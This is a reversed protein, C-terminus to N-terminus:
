FGDKACRFGPLDSYKRPNFWVWSTTSVYNESNGWSGGRTVLKGNKIKAVMEAANGAMDHVGFPSKGNPFSGVPAWESFTDAEGLANTKLPDWNNGWPFIRGDTGRAAKEWEAETPLRKGAWDCYKVAQSYGLGIIPFQAFKPFERRFFLRYPYIEPLVDRINPVTEIYPIQCKEEEMCRNYQQNTVEYIDIYFSRLNVTHDTLEDSNGGKSRMEFNGGPVLVMAVGDKGLNAKSLGGQSQQPELSDTRELKEMESKESLFISNKLEPTQREVVAGEFEKKSVHEAHYNGDVVKHLTITIVSYQRGSQTVTFPDGKTYTYEEPQTGYRGLLYYNGAAVHVTQEQGNPVEVAVKTPGMLKVIAFEGSQNDFTITNPATQAHTNQHSLCFTFVTLSLLVLMKMPNVM